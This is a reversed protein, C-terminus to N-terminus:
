PMSCISGSLGASIGHHMAPWLQARSNHMGYCVVIAISHSRMSCIGCGQVQEDNPSNHIYQKYPIKHLQLNCTYAYMTLEGMYICWFRPTVVTREFHLKAENQPMKLRIEM